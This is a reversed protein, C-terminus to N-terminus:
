YFGIIVAFMHIPDSNHQLLSSSPLTGLDRRRTHRVNVSSLSSSCIDRCEISMIPSINHFLLIGAPTRRAESFCSWQSTSDPAQLHLYHLSPFAGLISISGRLAEISGLTITFLCSRGPCSVQGQSREDHARHLNNRPSIIYKERDEISIDNVQM